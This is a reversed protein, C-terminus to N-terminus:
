PPPLEHIIVVDSAWFSPQGWDAHTQHRDQWNSGRVYLDGECLVWILGTATSRIQGGANLFAPVDEAVIPDGVAPLRPLPPLQLWDIELLTARDPM